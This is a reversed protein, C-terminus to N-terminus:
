VWYATRTLAQSQLFMLAKIFFPLANSGREKALAAHEMEEQKMQELIARSREDQIPLQALHAELHREVQHETEVVFGNSWEDGCASVLLGIFFSATYWFGNLYSPRSALENLREQCWTLHDQEEMAAQLLAAQTEPKKALFAQGRYLAQACIEGSHDVRM